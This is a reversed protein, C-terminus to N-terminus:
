GLDGDPDERDIELGCVRCRVFGGSQPDIFEEFYHEHTLERAIRLAEAHDESWASMAASPGPCCPLEYLAAAMEDRQQQAEDLASLITSLAVGILDGAHLRFLKELRTRSDAMEEPTM